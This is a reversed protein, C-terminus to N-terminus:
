RIWQSGPRVTGIVLFPGLCLCALPLARHKGTKRGRVELVTLGPTFLLPNALGARVLPALRDNLPALRAAIGRPDPARELANM